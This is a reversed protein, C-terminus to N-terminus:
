HFNTEASDAAFYIYIYIGLRTTYVLPVQEYTVAFRTM